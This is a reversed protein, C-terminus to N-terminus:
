FILALRPVFVVLYTFMALGGTMAVFVNGTNRIKRGMSSDTEADADLQLNAATRCIGAMVFLLTSVLLGLWQAASLGVIIGGSIAPILFFLQVILGPDKQLVKVVGSFLPLHLKPREQVMSPQSHYDM